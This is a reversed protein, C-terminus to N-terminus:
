CKLSGLRISKAFLTGSGCTNMNPDKKKGELYFINDSLGCDPLDYFYVRETDEWNIQACVHKIKHMKGFDINM